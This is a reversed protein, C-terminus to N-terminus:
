KLTELYAYVHHMDADTVKGLWEFHADLGNVVTYKVSRKEFTQRTGGADITQLTFEDDAALEKNLTQGNALTISVKPRKPAPRVTSPYLMRQILQLGQYRTGIGALDGTASHCAVCGGAGAFYKKSRFLM